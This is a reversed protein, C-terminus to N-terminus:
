VHGGETLERDLDRASHIVRVIEVGGATERYFILRNEFGEVRWVRLGLAALRDSAWREGIGPTRAIQEYSAAAADYFRLATELGAERALYDALEEVDRDAAPTTTYPGNM